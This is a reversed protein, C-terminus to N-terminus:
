EIDKDIYYGDLENPRRWIIRGQYEGKYYFAYGYPAVYQNNYPNKYINMGISNM